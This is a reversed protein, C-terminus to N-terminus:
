RGPEVSAGGMGLSYWSGKGIGNKQLYNSKVM